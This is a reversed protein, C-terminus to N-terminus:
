IQGARIDSTSKIQNTKIETEDQNSKGQISRNPNPEYQRIQGARIDSQSKRSKIQRSRQRTNVRSAKFQGTPIQSTNDPRLKM